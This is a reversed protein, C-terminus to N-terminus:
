AKKVTADGLLFALEIECHRIQYELERIHKSHTRRDKPNKLRVLETQLWSISSEINSIREKRERIDTERQTISKAWGSLADIFDPDSCHPKPRNNSNMYLYQCLSEFM